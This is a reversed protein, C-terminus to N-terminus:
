PMSRPLLRTLSWWHSCLIQIDTSWHSHVERPPLTGHQHQHHAFLILSSLNYSRLQQVFVSKINDLLILLAFQSWCNREERPDINAQASRSGMGALCQGAEARTLVLWVYHLTDARCQSQIFIKIRSRIYNCIDVSSYCSDLVM